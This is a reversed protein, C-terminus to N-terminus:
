DFDKHLDEVSKVAVNTLNKGRAYPVANSSCMTINDCVSPVDNFCMSFFLQGLVSGQPVGM